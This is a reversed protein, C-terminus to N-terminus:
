LTAAFRWFDDAQEVSWGFLMRIFEAVPNLREFMTAGAILFEADDRTEEPLQDILSQMVAPIAGTSIAALAEPKTILERKYLGQFFQRRSIDAVPQVAPQQPVDVWQDNEYRRGLCSLPDSLEALKILNEPKPDFEHDGFDSVVSCIMTDVDVQAYYTM